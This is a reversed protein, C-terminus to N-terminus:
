ADPTVMKHFYFLMASLIRKSEKHKGSTGSVHANGTSRVQDRLLVGHTLDCYCKAHTEGGSALM